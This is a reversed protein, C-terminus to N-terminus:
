FYYSSSSCHFGGDHSMAQPLNSKSFVISCFKASTLSSQTRRATRIRSASRDCSFLSYRENPRCSPVGSIIVPNNAVIFPYSLLFRNTIAFSVVLHPSSINNMKDKPSYFPVQDSYATEIRYYCSSYSDSPVHVIIPLIKCRDRRDM